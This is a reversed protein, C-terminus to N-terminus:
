SKFCYLRILIKTKEKKKVLKITNVIDNLEELNDVNFTINQLVGLYIFDKNKPGTAEIKAGTFGAALVDKLENESAVDINIDNYLAQKVLAPSKNCKHAYFIKGSMSYKKFVDKFAQINKDMVSPFVVNCPSGFCNLTDFVLEKDKIYENIEDCILPTFKFM